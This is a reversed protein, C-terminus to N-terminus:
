AYTGTVGVAGFKEYQYHNGAQQRHSGISMLTNYLTTMLYAKINYVKTTNNRLCELAYEIHTVDLKKFCSVVIAHPKEEKGVKIMDEKSCLTEVMIEKLENIIETEGKYENVLYDYQINYKILETYEEYEEIARAAIMAKTETTIARTEAMTTKAENFNKSVASSAKPSVSIAVPNTTTIIKNTPTNQNQEILRDIEKQNEQEEKKLELPQASQNISQNYYLESYDIYSSHGNSMGHYTQHVNESIDVLCKQFNETFEVGSFDKVFILSPKGQGQRKKEILGIEELQKIMKIALKNGCRMETMVQEVTYIIYLRGQLDTFRDSNMASLSARSLMKGYLLKAGYDVSDFAEHSVLTNPVTIFQYGIATQPTFYKLNLKQNKM